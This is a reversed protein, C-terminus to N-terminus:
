NEDEDEDESKHYIVEAGTIKEITNHFNKIGIEESYFKKVHKMGNRRIEDIKKRNEPNIVFNIKENITKPEIYICNVMNFFGYHILHELM